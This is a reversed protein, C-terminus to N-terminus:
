EALEKRTAEVDREATDREFQEKAAQDKAAIEAARVDPANNLDSRGKAWGFYSAVARCGDTLLTVFWV